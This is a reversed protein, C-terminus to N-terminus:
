NLSLEYVCSVRLTGDGGLSLLLAIMEISGSFAVQHLASSGDSAARNVNAGAEVLMKVAELQNNHVAHMLPTRGESDEVDIEERHVLNETGRVREITDQSIPLMSIVRALAKKDGNAAAYHLALMNVSSGTPFKETGRTTGAKGKMSILQVNGKNDHKKLQKVLASNYPALGQDTMERDQVQSEGTEEITSYLPDPSNTYDNETAGSTQHLEPSEVAVKNGIVLSTDELLPEPEYVNLPPAQTIPTSQKVERDRKKLVQSYAPM